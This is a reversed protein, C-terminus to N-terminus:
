VVDVEVIEFGICALKIRGELKNETEGDITSVSHSFFSILTYKTLQM